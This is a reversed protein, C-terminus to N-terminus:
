VDIMQTLIIIFLLIIHFIILSYYIKVNLEKILNIIFMVIALSAIIMLSYSIVSSDFRAGVLFAELLGNLGTDNLVGPYSRVFFLIRLIFMWFLSYLFIATFYCLPGFYKKVPEKM